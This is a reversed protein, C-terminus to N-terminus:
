YGFSPMKWSFYPLARTILTASLKQELKDESISLRYCHLIGETRTAASCTDKYKRHCRQLVTSTCCPVLNRTTLNVGRGNQRPSPDRFDTRYLSSPSYFRESGMASWTCTNDSGPISGRNRLQGNVTSLQAPQKNVLSHPISSHCAAHTADPLTHAVPVTGHVRPM